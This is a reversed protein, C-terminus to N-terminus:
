DKVNLKKRCNYREDNCFSNYQLPLPANNKFLVQLIGLDLENPSDPYRMPCSKCGESSESSSGDDNVVEHGPLGCAHGVEHIACVTVMQQVLQERTTEGMMSFAQQALSRPIGSAQLRKDEDSGPRNLAHDLLTYIRDIYGRLRAPFIKTYDADEPSSSNNCYGYINHQPRINDSDELGPETTLRVAYKHYGSPEGMKYDVIRDITLGGRNFVLENNLRYATIGSAQKWLQTDFINGEDIVFLDKDRPSLRKHILSSGNLVVFGRYERYLSLGDGKIEQGAVEEEDWDENYSRIGQEEEWADAVHNNNEDRPISLSPRGTAEDQATENLEDCVAKVRGYAGCDTAEVIVAALSVRESTYAHKPDNPDIVIGEAQEDAFCLDDKKSVDRPYNCCRGKNTSVDTLYFDIRGQPAPKGKEQSKLEAVIGLPMPVGYMNNPNDKMRPVPVWKQYIEPTVPAITMKPQLPVNGISWNITLTGQILPYQNMADGWQSKIAPQTSVMAGGVTVLALVPVSMNGKSGGNHWTTEFVGGEIFSLSTGSSGIGSSEAKNAFGAFATGPTEAYYPVRLSLNASGHSTVSHGNATAVETTDGDTISWKPETVEFCALSLKKSVAVRGVLGMLGGEVIPLTNTETTNITQVVKSKNGESDVLSHTITGSFSGKEKVSTEAGTLTLSAQVNAITTVTTGENHTVDQGNIKLTYTVTGKTPCIIQEDPYGLPVPSEVFEHQEAWVSNLGGLLFIGIVM